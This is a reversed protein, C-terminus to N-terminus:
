LKGRFIYWGNGLDKGFIFRKYGFVALNNKDATYMFGVGRSNIDTIVFAISNPRLVSSYSLNLKGLTNKTTLSDSAEIIGQTTGNTKQKTDKLLLEFEKENQKFYQELEADTKLALTLNSKIWLKKNADIVIKDIQETVMSVYGFLGSSYIIDDIIWKGASKIYFLYADFKNPKPPSDEPIGKVTLSVITTSDTQSVIFPNQGNKIASTDTWGLRISSISSLSIKKDILKQTLEKPTQGYCIASTLICIITKTFLKTM